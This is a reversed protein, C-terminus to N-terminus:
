NEEQEKSSRFYLLVKQINANFNQPIIENGAKPPLHCNFDRNRIAITQSFSYTRLLHTFATQRNKQLVKLVLHFFAIARVKIRKLIESSINM